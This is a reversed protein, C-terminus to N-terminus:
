EDEEVEIEENGVEISSKQLKCRNDLLKFPCKFSCNDDDEDYYKDCIKRIELYTLDKIKKKM